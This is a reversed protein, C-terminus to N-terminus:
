RLMFYPSAFIFHLAPGLNNRVQDSSLTSGTGGDSLRQIVIALHEDAWTYGTITSTLKKAVDTIM